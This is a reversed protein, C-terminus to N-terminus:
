ESAPLGFVNSKTRLTGRENNFRSKTISKNTIFYRDSVITMDTLTNSERTKRLKNPVSSARLMKVSSALACDMDPIIGRSAPLNIVEWAMTSFVLYM